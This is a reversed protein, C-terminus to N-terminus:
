ITRNDPGAPTGADDETATWQEAEPAKEVVVALPMQARAVPVTFWIATLVFAALVLATVKVHM